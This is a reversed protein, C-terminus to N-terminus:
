GLNSFPDLFQNGASELGHRQKRDTILALRGIIVVEGLLQRVRMGHKPQEGVPEGIQEGRHQLPLIQLCKGILRFLTRLRLRVADKPSAQVPPAIAEDPERWRGDARRARLRRSSTKSKTRM